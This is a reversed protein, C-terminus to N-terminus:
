MKKIPYEIKLVKDKNRRERLHKTCLSLYNDDGVEVDNEKNGNFYTYFADRGCVNCSSTINIVKDSVALVYPMIGFPIQESTMNLGSCYIDIDDIISLKLLIKIDGTLFQIEDIFINTTDEKIYNLMESLDNICIADITEKSGKSQIIGDDRTDIKPKFVLINDKNYIKKYTNIMAESKGSHMPGTFTTIM